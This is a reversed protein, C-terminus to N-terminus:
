VVNFIKRYNQEIARARDSMKRGQSEMQAVFRKVEDPTAQQLHKYGQQGSIIWKSAAATARLERKNSESALSFCHRLVEGANMWGGHERLLNELATVEDESPQPPIEPVDSIM